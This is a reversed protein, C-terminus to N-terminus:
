VIPNNYIVYMVDGNREKGNALRWPWAPHRRSPCHEPSSRPSKQQLGTRPPTGHSSNMAVIFVSQNSHNHKQCNIKPRNEENTPTSAVAVEHFRQQQQVGDSIRRKQVAARFNPSALIVPSGLVGLSEWSPKGGDLTKSNM